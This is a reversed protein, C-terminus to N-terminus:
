GVNVSVSQSGTGSTGVAPDTDRTVVEIVSSGGPMNGVVIGTLLDIIANILHGKDQTIANGSDDLEFLRNNLDKITENTGVITINCVASM